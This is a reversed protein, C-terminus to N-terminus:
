REPSMLALAVGLGAGSRVTAIRRGPQVAPKPSSVLEPGLRAVAADLDTLNLVLGFLGPDRVRASEVIEIISGRRGGQDAFRHFAQRVTDTERIRRCELGLATTFAESTRELSDTMVVVHDIEVVDIPHDLAAVVGGPRVAIGDIEDPLGDAGEISLAVVGQAGAVFELAGNSFPIRGHDDAVLGLALWSNVDGGIDIAALRVESV